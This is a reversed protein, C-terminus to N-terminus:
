SRACERCRYVLTRPKTHHLTNTYLQVRQPGVLISPGIPYVSFMRATQCASGHAVGDSQNRCNPEQLTTHDRTEALGARCLSETCHMRLLGCDIALPRPCAQGEIMDIVSEAGAKAKVNGEGYKINGAGRPCSCRLGAAHPIPRHCCTTCLRTLFSCAAECIKVQPGTTASPHAPRVGGHVCLQMLNDNARLTRGM